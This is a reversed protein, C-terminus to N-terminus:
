SQEVTSLIILLSPSLSVRPRRDLHLYLSSVADTRLLYDSEYEKWNVGKQSFSYNEPMKLPREVNITAM